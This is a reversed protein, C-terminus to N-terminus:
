CWIYDRYIYYAIYFLGTLLVFPTYPIYIMDYTDCHPAIDHNPCVGCVSSALTPTHTTPPRCSCLSRQSIFFLLNLLLHIHPGPHIHKHKHRLHYCTLTVRYSWRSSLRMQLHLRAFLSLSLPFVLTHTHETRHARTNTYRSHSCFLCLCIFVFLRWCSIYLDTTVPCFWFSVLPLSYNFTYNVFLLKARVFLSICRQIIWNLM